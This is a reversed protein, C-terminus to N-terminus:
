TAHTPHLSWQDVSWKSPTLLRGKTGSAMRMGPFLNEIFTAHQLKLKLLELVSAHNWTGGTNWAGLQRTVKSFYVEAVGGSTPMTHPYWCEISRCPEEGSARHGECITEETPDLSFCELSLNQYEIIMVM